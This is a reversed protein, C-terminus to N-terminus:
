VVPAAAGTRAIEVDALVPQHVVTRLLASRRAHGNRFVGAGVHLALKDGSFAARGVARDTANVLDAVDIVPARRLGAGDRRAAFSHQNVDLCAVSVCSANLVEYASRIGDATRSLFEDRERNAASWVGHFEGEARHSFEADAVRGNLKGR